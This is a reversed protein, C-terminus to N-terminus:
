QWKNEASKEDRWNKIGTIAYRDAIVQADRMIPFLQFSLNRRGRTKITMCKEQPEPKMEEGVSMPELRMVLKKTFRQPVRLFIHFRGSIENNTANNEKQAWLEKWQPYRAGM